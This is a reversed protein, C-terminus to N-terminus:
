RRAENHKKMVLVAAVVASVLALGSVANAVLDSKDAFPSIASSVSHVQDPTLWGILELIWGKVINFAAIFPSAIVAWVAPSKKAPTPDAPTPPTVLSRTVSSPLNEATSGPEATSWLVVEAARRNVLGQVKQGKANVFKMMEGPVQDFQRANLRKWITAKAMAGDVGLNFVFSLLAAYQNPTLEDVVAGIRRWLREAAIGLDQRLWAEAMEQTVTLGIHVDPGTHGYGGTLTGVVKDGPALVARPRLDDYVKLVCGEHRRLFDVAQQPTPRM